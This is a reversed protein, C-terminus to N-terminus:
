QRNRRLLVVEALRSDDGAGRFKVNPLELTNDGDAQATVLGTSKIVYVPGGAVPTGDDVEVVISGRVLVDMMEFRAYSGESSGYKSPTKSASRVTFGVFDDATAGTCFQVAGTGDNTLVVPVGYALEHNDRNPLAVVVDDLSRSIAGPSGNPFTTIVKGM